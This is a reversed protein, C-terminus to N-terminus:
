IDDLLQVFILWYCLVVIHTISYTTYSLKLFTNFKEVIEFNVWIKDRRICYAFMRQSFLCLHRKKPSMQSSIVYICVGLSSKANM